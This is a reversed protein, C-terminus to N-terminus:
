YIFWQCIQPLGPDGDQVLQTDEIQRSCEHYTWQTYMYSYDEILDITAVGDERLAHDM